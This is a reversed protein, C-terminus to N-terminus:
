GVGEVEEEPGGVPGGEPGGVLWATEFRLLPRPSTVGVAQVSHRLFRAFTQGNAPSQVRLGPRGEGEMVQSTGLHGNALRGM